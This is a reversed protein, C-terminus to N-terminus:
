RPPPSSLKGAPASSHPQPLPTRVGAFRTREESLQKLEKQRAKADEKEAFPVQLYQKAAARGGHQTAPASSAGVAAAAAALRDAHHNGVSHRDAGGTHARVHQLRVRPCARFARHAQRVLDLNPISRRWGEAECRAGYRTACGIAYTPM